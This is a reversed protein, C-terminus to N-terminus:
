ISGLVGHDSLTQTFDFSTNAVRTATTSSSSTPERSAAPSRWACRTSCLDTRMSTPFQWGVIMRSCADIVFSLFLLRGQCRLYPFDALWLEDPRSAAFDRGAM